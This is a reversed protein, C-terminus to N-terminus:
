LAAMKPDIWIKNGLEYGMVKIYFDIWGTQSPNITVELYQSWDAQNARTTIGQISVVQSITGDLASSLYDAYLKLEATPLTAFTTQIYYRYTKSVGATAWIRHSLPTLFRAQTCNSLTVIELVTANGGARQSPNDGTGDADVKKSDAWPSYIRHDGYTKNFDECYYEGSRNSISINNRDSGLMVPPDSIKVNRLIATPYQISVSLTAANFNFDKTNPKSTGQEDFGISCNIFTNPGQNIAAGSHYIYCDRFESYMSESSGYVNSRFVCSNFICNVIMQLPLATGYFTCNNFILGAGSAIPSLQANLCYCDNSVAGVGNNIFSRNCSFQISREILTGVTGIGSGSHQIMYSGHSFVVGNFSPAGGLAQFSIRGMGAFHVENLSVNGAVTNTDTIKPANTALAGIATSYGLKYMRVNRQVNLVIGRTKFATSVVDAVNIQNGVAFSVITTRLFDTNYDVHLAGKHLILEDGINWKASMDDVTHIHTENTGDSVLFTDFDSGYYTIDGYMILKGGANNVIGVVDGATPNWVLEATVTKDIVAGSAGVRLEGGNNITLNVHGFTIKTNTLIAFTLLGNLTMAGLENTESVNYTVTHGAAVTVVNGALGPWDTGKVGPSANGWTAGDNWNGTQVSTFPSGVGM